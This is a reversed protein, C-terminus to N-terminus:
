KNSSALFLQIPFETGLKNYQLRRHWTQTALLYHPLIPVDSWPHRCTPRDAPGCCTDHIDAHLDTQRAVAPIMSTQMYTQRGPWLLYTRQHSCSLVRYTRHVTALFFSIRERTDKMFCIQVVHDQCYRSDKWSISMSASIMTMYIGKTKQRGVKSLEAFRRICLM